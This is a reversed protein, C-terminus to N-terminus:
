HGRIFDHAMGIVLAAKSIKKGKKLYRGIMKPLTGSRKKVEDELNAVEKNGEENLATPTPQWTAVTGDGNDTVTIRVHLLMNEQLRVFEVSKNKEFGTFTWIGDGSPNSKETKFVCKDEAYGTSSYIIECDWDMLWDAERAPCLLPFIDEPKADWTGSFEVKKRQVQPGKELFDHLLKESKTTDPNKLYETLMKIIAEGSAHSEGLKEKVLQNGKESLATFTAEWTVTTTGNENDTVVIHAHELVDYGMFRVFDAVKNPEYRTFMWLGKGGPCKEDTRFIAKDEAYGSETYLLECDWGTVWDAERTPCLLPFLEKPTSEFTGSFRQTWREYKPEKQLYAQVIKDSKTTDMKQREKTKPKDM